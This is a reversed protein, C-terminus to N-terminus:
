NCPFLQVTRMVEARSTMVYTSSWRVPMDLLLQYIKKAGGQKQIDIFIQKRKTSSRAQSDLDLDSKHIYLPLIM